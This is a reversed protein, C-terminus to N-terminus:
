QAVACAYMTDAPQVLIGGSVLVPPSQVFTPMGAQWALRGSAAQYARLPAIRRQWRVRGDALNM